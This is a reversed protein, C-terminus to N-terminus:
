AVIMAKEELTKDNGSADMVWSFKVIKILNNEKSRFSAVM